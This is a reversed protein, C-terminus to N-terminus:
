QPIGEQRARDTQRDAVERNRHRHLPIFFYNLPATFKQVAQQAILSKILQKLEDLCYIKKLMKKQPISRNNKTRMRTEHINRDQVVGIKETNLPVVATSSNSSM